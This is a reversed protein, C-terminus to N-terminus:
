AMKLLSVWNGSGANVQGVLAYAAQAIVESQSVPDTVPKEVFAPASAPASAIELPPLLTDSRDSVGMRDSLSGSPASSQIGIQSRGPSSVTLLPGTPIIPPPATYVLPETGPPPSPEYATPTPTPTPTLIPSVIASPLIGSNGITTVVGGIGSLLSM